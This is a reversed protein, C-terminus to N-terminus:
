RSRRADHNLTGASLDAVTFNLQRALEGDRGHDGTVNLCRGNSGALVNQDRSRDVM